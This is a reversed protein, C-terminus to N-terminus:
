RLHPSQARNQPHPSNATQTKHGQGQKVSVREITFRMRNKARPLFFPLALATTQELQKQTKKIKNNDRSMHTARGLGLVGYQALAM